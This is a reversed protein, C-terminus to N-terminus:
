LHIRHAAVGAGRLTSGCPHDLRVIAQLMMEVVGEVNRDSPVSGAIEIGLRRALSSRVQDQDLKEGEIESSKIVEQTLAQLMAEERLAFGLAEMHGMLRGQRYRVATLLEALKEKDWQFQPWNKQEHIYM